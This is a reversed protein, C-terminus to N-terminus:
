PVLEPTMDLVGDREEELVTKVGVVAAAIRARAAATMGYQEAFRLFMAHAAREVGIAPHEVLQGMSGPVYEGQVAVLERASEARGWQVCLATLAAGDVRDIIGAGSLVPVIEDWLREGAPPLNDPKRPAGSNLKLPEPLARHGANGERIKQEIPKAKRGRM